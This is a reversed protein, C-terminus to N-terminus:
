QGKKIRPWDRKRFKLVAAEDHEVAKRKPQQPTLELTRLLKPLHDVHYTVGFKQEIWKRVRPCTWTDDPFGAAKAGRLIAAQLQQLQKPTLKRKGAPREKPALGAVGDAKWAKHWKWAATYAVQMAKSVRAPTWGQEFMKAASM